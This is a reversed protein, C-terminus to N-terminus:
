HCIPFTLAYWQQTAPSCATAPSPPTPALTSIPLQRHALDAAGATPQLREVLWSRRMSLCNKEIFTEAPLRGNLDALSRFGPALEAVVIQNICFRDDASAIAEALWTAWAPDNTLVDLLVSTDVLIDTM